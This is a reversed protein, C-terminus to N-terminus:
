LCCLRMFPLRLQDLCGGGQIAIHCVFRELDASCAIAVLWTCALTERTIHFYPPDGTQSAIAYAQAGAVVQFPTGARYTAVFVSRGTAVQPSIFFLAAAAAVTHLRWNGKRETCNHLLDRSRQFHAASVHSCSIIRAGLPM